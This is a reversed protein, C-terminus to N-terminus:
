KCKNRRSISSDIDRDALLRELDVTIMQRHNDVVPCSLDCALDEFLRVRYHRTVKATHEVVLDRDMEWVLDNHVDM